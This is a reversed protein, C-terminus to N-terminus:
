FPFFDLNYCNCKIIIFLQLIPDLIVTLLHAVLLVISTIFLFLVTLVTYFCNINILPM